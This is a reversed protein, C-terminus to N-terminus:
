REVEAVRRGYRGIGGSRRRRGALLAAGLGFLMASGPEPAPVMLGDGTGIEYDGASPGQDSSFVLFWSHEGGVVYGDTGDFEWVVRSESGDYYESGAEIGGAPDQQSSISAIDIAAGNAGLLAFYTVAEESEAYDNFIQYAYIYQGDGPRGLGNDQYERGYLPHTTDYVAFDIRGYLSGEDYTVSGEYYSSYLMPSLTAAADRTFLGTAAVFMVCFLGVRKIVMNGRGLLHAGLIRCHRDEQHEFLNM